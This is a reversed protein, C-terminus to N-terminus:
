GGTYLGYMRGVRTDTSTDDAEETQSPDHVEFEMWGESTLM